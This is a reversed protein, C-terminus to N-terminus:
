IADMLRRCSMATANAWMGGIDLTDRKIKQKMRWVAQGEYIGPELGGLGEVKNVIADELGVDGEAAADVSSSGINLRHPETECGL